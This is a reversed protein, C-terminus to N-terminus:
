QCLPRSPCAIPSKRFVHVAAVFAAPCVPQDDVIVVRRTRAVSQMITATDLPRLVRLDVVEAEIGEGALTEAAALTKFLSGGYTIM